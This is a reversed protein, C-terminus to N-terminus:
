VKRASKPGCNVMDYIMPRYDNKKRVSEIVHEPFLVKNCIIKGVKINYKNFETPSIYKILGEYKPEIRDIFQELLDLTKYKILTHLVMSQHKPEFEILPIAGITLDIKTTDNDKIYVRMGYIVQNYFGRYEDDNIFSSRFNDPYILKNDILFKIYSIYKTDLKLNNYSVSNGLTSYIMKLTSISMTSHDILKGIDISEKIKLLAMYSYHRNKIFIELLQVTAEQDLNAKEPNFQGFKQVIKGTILPLTNIYLQLCYPKHKEHIIDTLRLLKICMKVLVPNGINWLQIFKDLDIISNMFMNYGLFAKCFIPWDIPYDLFDIDGYMRFHRALFENLIRSTTHDLPKTIRGLILNEDLLKYIHIADGLDTIDFEIPRFILQQGGIIPVKILKFQRNFSFVHDMM